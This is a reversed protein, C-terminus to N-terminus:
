QPRIYIIYHAVGWANNDKKQRGSRQEIRAADNTWNGNTVFTFGNFMSFAITLNYRQTWDSNNLAQEPGWLTNFNIWPKKLFALDPLVYYLKVGHTFSKNNNVFASSTNTFYYSATLRDTIDYTFGLGTTRGPTGWGNTYSLSFNPNSISGKVEFGLWTPFKGLMATLGKGIPINWLVYGESFTAQRGGTQGLIPTIGIPQDVLGDDYVPGVLTYRRAMDGWNLTIKFGVDGPNPADKYLWLAIDKVTFSNVQTNHLLPHKGVSDGADPNSSWYQYYNVLFGGFTIDKFQDLFTRLAGAEEGTLSERPAEKALKREEILARFEGIETDTLEVAVVWPPM